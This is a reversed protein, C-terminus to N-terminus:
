CFKGDSVHNGVNQDETEMKVSDLITVEDSGGEDEEEEEELDGWSSEIGEGIQATGPTWLVPKSVSLKNLFSLFWFRIQCGPGFYALHSSTKKKKKLIMYAWKFCTACNTEKFALYGLLWCVLDAM